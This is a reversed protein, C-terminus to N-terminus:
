MHREIEDILQAFHPFLRNYVFFNKGLEARLEAGVEAVDLFENGQGSICDLAFGISVSIVRLEEASFTAVHNTLKSLSSEAAMQNRYFQALSDTHCFPILQLATAIAHVDSNSLQPIYNKIQKM